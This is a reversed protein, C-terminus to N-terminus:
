REFVRGYAPKESLIGKSVATQRHSLMRKAVEPDDINVGMRRWGDAVAAPIRTVGRSTGATDTSQSAAGPSGKLRDPFRKQMQRDIAEFYENSGVELAGAARIQRDIEHSAKTLEADVGYWAANRSRWRDLNTTDPQGDDNDEREDFRALYAKGESKMREVAATLESLKRQAKAIALGEGEEYAAALAQEAADVERQKTQIATVVKRTAEDKEGARKSRQDRTLLSDIASGMKELRQELATNRDVSPNGSAGQGEGGGGNDGDAGPIEIYPNDSM